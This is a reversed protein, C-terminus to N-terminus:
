FFQLFDPRDPNFEWGTNNGSDTSNHAIWTAGGTATSDQIDVYDVVVTGSTKSLTYQVGPTVSVFNILNGATGSAVLNGINHTGWTVGTDFKVTVGPAVTMSAISATNNMYVGGTIHDNIVVEGVTVSDRVGLWPQNPSTSNQVIARANNATVAGRFSIEPSYFTFAGSGTDMILESTGLDLLNDTGTTSYMNLYTATLTYNNTYVKADTISSLTAGARIMGGPASINSLLNYTVGTNPTIEVELGEHNINKFDITHTGATRSIFLFEVSADGTAVNDRTLSIQNSWVFSGYIDFRSWNTSVATSNFIVNQDIGNADFNRTPVETSTTTVTQGDASFSNADFYVNDARTPVTVGGSGGSTASWRATDSWSGTGGVWYRDEISALEISYSYWEGTTNVSQTGGPLANVVGNTDCSRIISAVGTRHTHGAPTNTTMNTATAHGAFSVAWSTSNAKMFSAGTPYSITTSSGSSFTGGGLSGVGRYVNVAVANANTWTGVTESASKAFKYGVRFGDTGGSSSSQNIFGPALTPVVASADRYAFVVIIDGAQHAPMAVTNSAASASSVYSIAM